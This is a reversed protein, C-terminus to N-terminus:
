TAAPALQLKQLMGRVLQEQNQLHRRFETSFETRRVEVRRNELSEQLIEVLLDREGQTLSFQIM